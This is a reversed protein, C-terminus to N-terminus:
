VLFLSSYDESGFLPDLASLQSDFCVENHDWALDGDNPCAFGYDEVRLDASSSDSNSGDTDPMASFDFLQILELDFGSLVTSSDPQESNTRAECGISQDMDHPAFEPPINGTFSQRLSETTQHNFKSNLDDITITKKSM